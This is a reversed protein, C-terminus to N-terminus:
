LALDVEWGDTVRECGAACPRRGAKRGGQGSESEFQPCGPVHSVAVVYPRIIVM